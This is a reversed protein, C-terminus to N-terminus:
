IMQSTVTTRPSMSWTWNMTTKKMDETLSFDSLAFSLVILTVVAASTIVTSALKKM